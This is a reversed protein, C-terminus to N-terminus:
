QWRKGVKTKYEAFYIEEKEGCFPCPLALPNNQFENNKIIRM